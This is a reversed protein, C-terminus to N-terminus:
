PELSGVEKAMHTKIEKTSNDYATKFNFLDPHISNQNFIADRMNALVIENLSILQNQKQNVSEKVEKNEQLLIEIKKDTDQQIQLIDNSLHKVQKLEQSNREKDKLFIKIQWKTFENQRDFRYQTDDFFQKLIQTITVFDEENNIRFEEFTSILQVFHKNAEQVNNQLIKFNNFLCAESTKMIIDIDQLITIKSQEIANMLIANSQNLGDQISQQLSPENNLSDKRFDNILNTFILLYEKNEQILILHNRNSNLQKITKIIRAESNSIIEFTIQRSEM